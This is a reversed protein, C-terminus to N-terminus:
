VVGGATWSAGDWFTGYRNWPNFNTVETQYASWITELATQLQGITAGKPVQLTAVKEVVSGNQIALLDAPAINRVASTATANAYFSQRAAPVDAWLAYSWFQPTDSGYQTEKTSLRELVIVRKSAM